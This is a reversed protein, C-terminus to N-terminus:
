ILSLNDCELQSLESSRENEKMKQIVNGERITVVRHQTDVTNRRCVEKRKGTQVELLLSGQPEHSPTDGSYPPQVLHATKEGTKELLM